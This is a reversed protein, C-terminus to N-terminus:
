KIIAKFALKKDEGATLKLKFRGKSDVKIGDVEVDKLFGVKEQWLQFELDRGAPLDKLAFGGDKDSVAAYPDNRVVLWAGMWPHINCGVKAPLSEESPLNVTVSQDAPIIPNFPPNSLMAGNSNHGVPDSNKILLKQKTSIVLVHPEFRCNKNDLVVEKGSQADYDPNVAVKPTRLWIVVNELGGSPGVELSEEFLPHKGCVEPDKTAPISVPKPAAGVFKFSGSLTAWGSGEAAGGSSADTSETASAGSAALLTNRLEEGAKANPQPGANLRSGCGGAAVVLLCVGVLAQARALSSLQLRRNLKDQM